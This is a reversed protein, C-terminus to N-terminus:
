ITSLHRLRGSQSRRLERRLRAADTGHNRCQNGARCFTKRREPHARDRDRKASNIRRVRGSVEPFSRCDEQGSRALRRRRRGPLRWLAHLRVDHTFRLAIRLSRSHKRTRSVRVHAAHGVRGHREVFVRPALRSKPTADIGRSHRALIRRARSSRHWGAEGCQARLGLQEDDLLLLRASRHVADLQSLNRERRNKRPQPALLWLGAQTQARDRRRARREDSFCRPDISAAAGDVSRAIRWRTALGENYTAARSTRTNSDGRDNRDRPSTKRATSNRGRRTISNRKKWSTM